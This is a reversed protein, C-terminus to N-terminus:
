AKVESPVDFAGRRGKQNYCKTLLGSILLEMDSALKEIKKQLLGHAILTPIAIGLGVPVAILLAIVSSILTGYIPGLGGLVPNPRANPAWRQTTLFDVGYTSIAPWAGIIRSVIIGGLLLLVTAAALQALIRFTSDGAKFNALAKSRWANTNAASAGEQVIVDTM